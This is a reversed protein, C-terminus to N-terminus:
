RGRGGGGRGAMTTMMPGATLDTSTNGPSPHRVSTRPQQPPPHCRAPVVLILVLIVSKADDGASLPSPSIAPRCPRQLRPDHRTWDTLGRRSYTGKGVSPQCLIVLYPLRGNRKAIKHLHGDKKAIKHPNELSM